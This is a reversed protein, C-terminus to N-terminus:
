PFCEILPKRGADPIVRAMPCKRGGPTNRPSSKAQSPEDKPSLGSKTSRLCEAQPLFPDFTSVIGIDALPFRVIGKGFTYRAPAMQYAPLGRELSLGHQYGIFANFGVNPWSPQFGNKLL